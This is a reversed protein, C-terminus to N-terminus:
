PLSDVLERLSQELGKFGDRGSEKLIKVALENDVTSLDRQGNDKYDEPLNASPRLERLIELVQTWHFPEAFAFIREGNLSLDTLAGVHLM